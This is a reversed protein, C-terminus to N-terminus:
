RVVPEVIVKPYPLYEELQPCWQEGVRVTPDDELVVSAYWFGGPLPWRLSDDAYRWPLDTSANREDIM